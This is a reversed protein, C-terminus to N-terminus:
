GEFRRIVRYGSLSLAILGPLTPAITRPPVRTPPQERLFRAVERRDPPASPLWAADAHLLPRRARRLGRQLRSM